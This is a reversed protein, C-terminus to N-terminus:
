LVQRTAPIGARLEPVATVAAKTAMHLYVIGGTLSDSAVDCFGYRNLLDVVERPPPFAHVSAPLYAYASAHGSVARGIAPLVRTFYWLYLARIPGGEPIAFELIALRGGNVLTRRIEALAEPLREINRLGFAVIVADISASRVPLRTADGRAVWMRNTLGRRRIKRVGRRLMGDSLDVGVVRAARGAPAIAELGFDATGTCVDLVTERGTLALARIACRRWRRDSGASLLHNLFDYAGSIADFMGAIRAPQKDIM